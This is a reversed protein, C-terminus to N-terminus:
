VQTNIVGTGITGGLQALTDYLLKAERPARVQAAAYLCADAMTEPHLCALSLCHKTSQSAAPRHRQQRALLLGECCRLASPRICSRQDKNVALCMCARMWCQTDAPGVKGTLIDSPTVGAGYAAEIDDADPEISTGNLSVDVLYGRCCCM